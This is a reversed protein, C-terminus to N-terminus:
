NENAAVIIKYHISKESSSFLQTTQLFPNENESVYNQEIKNQDLMEYIFDKMMDSDIKEKSPISKVKNAFDSFKFYQNNRFQQFLVDTMIEKPEKYKILM